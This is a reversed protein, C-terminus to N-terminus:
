KKLGCGKSKADYLACNGDCSLREHEIVMGYHAMNAAMLFPCIKKDVGLLLNTLIKHNTNRILQKESDYLSCRLDGVDHATLCFFEWGYKKCINWIKKVLPQIEKDYTELDNM